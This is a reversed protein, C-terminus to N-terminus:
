MELIQHEFKNIALENFMWRVIDIGYKNAFYIWNLEREQLNNNPFLVNRVKSVQRITTEYKRKEAELAKAKLTNLTEEIRLKSKTTLDELTTDILPLLHNIQNFSSNIEDTTNQFLTELNIESSAAVIKKILVDEETFIDVYELNNKELITKVGKEM